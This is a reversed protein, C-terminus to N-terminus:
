GVGKRDRMRRVRGRRWCGSPQWSFEVLETVRLRCRSGALHYAFGAEREWAFGDPMLWALAMGDARAGEVTQFRQIIQFRATSQSLRRSPSTAASPLNQRAM